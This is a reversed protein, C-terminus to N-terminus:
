HTATLASPSDGIHFKHDAQDHYVKFAARYTHYEGIDAWGIASDIRGNRDLVKADYHGTPVDIKGESNPAVDLKLLTGDKRNLLLRLSADSKNVVVVTPQKQGQRM